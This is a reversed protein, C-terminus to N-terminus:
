FLVFDETSNLKIIQVFSYYEYEFQFYYYYYYSVAQLIAKAHRRSLMELATLSQEAVDMCQISQLKELFVPIAEAVVPTSRPLAEMMYTLARCAHNMIDFNHEMSLLQILAPVTQKVPFGALTDENGMVLLQCMEIAAQLQQGEDGTAQLGQLLNQAKTVTSNSMGRHLLQQMRPALSGFLHPPLGRSELLAQLRGMEGDDTDEQSQGAGTTTAATGSGSGSNMARPVSGVGSSTSAGGATSSTGAAGASTLGDTTGSAVGLLNPQDNTTSSSGPLNNMGESGGSKGGGAGESSSSPGGGRGCRCVCIILIM